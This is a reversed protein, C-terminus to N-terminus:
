QSRQLTRAGASCTRLHTCARWMQCSRMRPMSPTSPAGCPATACDDSEAARSSITGGAGPATCCSGAQVAQVCQRGAAPACQRGSCSASGAQAGRGVQVALRGSSTWHGLKRWARRGVEGGARAAGATRLCASILDSSVSCKPLVNGRPLWREWGKHVLVVCVCVCVCVRVHNACKCMCVHASPAGDM